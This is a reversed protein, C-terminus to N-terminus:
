FEIVLWESKKLETEGYDAQRIQGKSRKACSFTKQRKNIDLGPFKKKSRM